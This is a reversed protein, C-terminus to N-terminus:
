VPVSITKKMHIKDYLVGDHDIAKEEIKEVEYGCKEYVRIAAKNESIVGLKVEKLGLECFAYDTILNTVETGVGRGWYDKDGILIGMVASGEGQDIPELKVNGIHKGNEKWFIGFFLASDSEDKENIYKKLGETTVSRTELYKNTVPDNLWSAYDQSADNTLLIRLCIKDGDIEARHWSLNQQLKM